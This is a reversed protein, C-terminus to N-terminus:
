VHAEKEVPKEVFLFEPESEIVDAIQGFNFGHDNMWALDGGNPVTTVDRFSGSSTGLKAADRASADLWGKNDPSPFETILKDKLLIECLVGLCCYEDGTKLARLGQKYKGSRLAAVWKKAIPSLM